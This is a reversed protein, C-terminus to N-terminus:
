QRVTNWNQVAEEENPGHAFEGRTDSDPAGDYCNDCAVMFGYGALDHEVTPLDGCYPCHCPTNM